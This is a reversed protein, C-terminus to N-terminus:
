RRARDVRKPRDSKETMQWGAAGVRHDDTTMTILGFAEQVFSGMSENYVAAWDGFGVNTTMLTPLADRHRQRLLLDLEKSAFGSAGDHEKGVDDLLLVPVSRVGDIVQQIESWRDEYGKKSQLSWQEKRMSIYDAYAVFLVPTEWNDHLEPYTYYIELLTATAESTKGTGAAGVWALGQGIGVMPPYDALERNESLLHDALHRVFNLAAPSEDERQGLRLSQLRKPIRCEGLRIRHVRPDITVSLTM